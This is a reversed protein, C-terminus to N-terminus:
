WLDAFSITITLSAFGSVKLALTAGAQKGADAFKKGSLFFAMTLPQPISFHSPDWACSCPLYEYTLLRIGLMM